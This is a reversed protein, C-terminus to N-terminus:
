PEDPVGYLDDKYRSADPSSSADLARADEASRDSRDEFAEIADLTDFIRWAPDSEYASPDMDAIMMPPEEVVYRDVAERVVEAMSVSREGAKRKLAEHQEYTLYIQTRKESIAM